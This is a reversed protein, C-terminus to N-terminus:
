SGGIILEGNFLECINFAILYTCRERLGTNSMMTIINVINCVASIFGLYIYINCMVAANKRIDDDSANYMVRKFESWKVLLQTPTVPKNGVMRSLRRAEKKYRTNTIVEEIARSVVSVSLEGKNLVVGIGLHEASAANKPQDGVLPIAILPVGTLIAEQFSNYGAHTIFAKTRPHRLLDVQPLWKFLHVNTPLMDKIDDEEYRWLFQYKPFRRFTDLFIKKWELPMKYSAVVSGFSFFITGDGSDVIEAIHNPLPKQDKIEVGVGGINVVKALTPRPMDYLENTNAMVLPCKAALDMLDPFEPSIHTRFLQTEPDAILRRWFLKMMGHGILSKVRQLFNMEGVAAMMIPPTYSPIIPLGILYAVYDIVPGSNLWIWSPIEAAHVLGVTCVDFMHAFALDFHQEKLWRLLQKNELTARCTDVIMSTQASLRSVMNYTSPKFTLEEQRKEMEKRTFNIPANVVHLKVNSKIKIDSNDRDSQSIIMVLTVDHGAEALTEAVRENFLLQSNSLDLVFIAMKYGFTSYVTFLLTLLTIM